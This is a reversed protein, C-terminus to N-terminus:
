LLVVPPLPPTVVVTEVRASNVATAFLALFSSVVALIMTMEPVIVPSTCTLIPEFLDIMPSGPALIHISPRSSTLSKVIEYFEDSNPQKDPLLGIHDNAINDALVDERCVSVPNANLRRGVHPDVVPKYSEFGIFDAALMKWALKVGVQIVTLVVVVSEDVDGMCGLPYRNGIGVEVIVPLCREDSVAVVVGSFIGSMEVNCLVVVVPEVNAASCWRQSESSAM